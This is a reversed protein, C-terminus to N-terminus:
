TQEALSYNFENEIITSKNTNVHTQHNNSQNIKLLLIFGPKNANYKISPETLFNGSNFATTYHLQFVTGIYIFQPFLSKAGLPMM